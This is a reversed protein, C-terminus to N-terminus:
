GCGPTQLESNEMELRIKETIDCAPGSATLWKNNEVSKLSYRFLENYECAYVRGRGIPSYKWIGQSSAMRGLEHADAWSEKCRVAVPYHWHLYEIGTPGKIGGYFYKDYRFPVKALWDVYHLFPIWNPGLGLNVCKVNTQSLLRAYLCDEGYSTPSLDKFLTETAPGLGAVSMMPDRSRIVGEQKLFYNPFPGVKAPTTLPDFICPADESSNGFTYSYAPVLMTGDAGLVNRIATLFLRNLSESNTVGSPVGLMGFSTSLYAIDGKQLGVDVLANTVDSIQYAKSKM